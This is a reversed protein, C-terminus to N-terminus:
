GVRREESRFSVRGTEDLLPVATTYIDSFQGFVTGPETGPVPEGRLAVKQFVFGPSAAAVAALALSVAITLVFVFFRPEVRKM